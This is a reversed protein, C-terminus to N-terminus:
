RPSPSKGGQSASNTGLDNNKAHASWMGIGHSGTTRPPDYAVVQSMKHPAMKRKYLSIISSFVSKAFLEFHFQVFSVESLWCCLSHSVAAATPWLLQRGRRLASVPVVMHSFVPPLPSLPIVSIEWLLRASGTADFPVRSIAGSLLGHVLALCYCLLLKPPLVLRFRHMM